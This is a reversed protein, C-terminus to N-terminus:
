IEIVVIDLKAHVVVVEAGLIQSFRLSRLLLAFEKAKPCIKYESSFGIPAHTQTCVLGEKDLANRVAWAKEEWNEALLFSEGEKDKFSFNIGDFGAAKVAKLGNELGVKSLIEGFDILLNMSKM